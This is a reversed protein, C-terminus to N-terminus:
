KSLDDRMLVRRVFCRECSLLDTIISGDGIERMDLIVLFFTLFRRSTWRVELEKSLM